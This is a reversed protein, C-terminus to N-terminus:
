RGNRPKPTESTNSSNPSQANSFLRNRDLAARIVKETKDLYKQASSLLDPSAMKITAPTIATKPTNLISELMQHSMKIETSIARNLSYNLMLTEQLAKDIQNDITGASEGLTLAKHVKKYTDLSKTM